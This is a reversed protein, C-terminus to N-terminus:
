GLRAASNAEGPSLAMLSRSFLAVDTPSDPFKFCAYPGSEQEEAQPVLGLVDHYFRFSTAFDDVLIRLQSPTTM